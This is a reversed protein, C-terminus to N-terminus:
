RVASFYSNLQRLTGEQEAFPFAPGDDSTM